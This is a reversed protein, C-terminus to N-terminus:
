PTGIGMDRRTIGPGGGFRDDSELRGPQCRHQETGDREPLDLEPAKILVVGTFRAALQM